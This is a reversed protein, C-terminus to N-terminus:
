RAPFLAMSSTFGHLFSRPGIPGIEGNCFFGALPFAGLKSRIARLDHDPEGFLHSGRGGCSFLLGGAPSGSKAERDLLEGLDEAATAADRLQFQVTQGVSCRDGVVLSGDEQVMGLINRILFDGRHFEAKSEHAVVGIHLSTRLLEKDQPTLSEFTEKLAAAAPKGALTRLRPGEAATVTYRRGVPRCGQSVLTHVSLGAGGLDLGVAGERRTEGDIWLVHAGPGNAGSALGGLVPRGPRGRQVAELLAEADITYPDALLLLAAPLDKGDELDEQAVTRPEVTVGPLRALLLAASTGGEREADAGIVGIGSCGLLHAARTRERIRAGAIAHDAAFDPTVFLVALDPPSGPGLAELARDAIGGLLADLDPDTGSASSFSPAM